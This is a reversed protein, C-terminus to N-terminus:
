KAKCHSCQGHEIDWESIPYGCMPNPCILIKKRRERIQRLKKNDGNFLTGVAVPSIAILAYWVNSNSLNNSNDFWGWIARLIIVGIGSFKAIWGHSHIAKEQKLELERQSNLLRRLQRFEFSYSGIPDIARHAMFTFCNGAGDKGLRIIDTESIIKSDVLRFEGDDDRVYTGNTSDMDQISWVGDDSVTIKAHNWSVGDKAEPIKIPSNSNRGVIIEKAM